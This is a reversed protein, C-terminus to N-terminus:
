YKSIYANIIYLLWNGHTVVSFLYLIQEEFNQTKMEFNQSKEQLKSKKSIM